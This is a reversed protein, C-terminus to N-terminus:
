LIVGILLALSITAYLISIFFPLNFSFLFNESNNTFRATRVKDPTDTIVTKDFGKVQGPLHM